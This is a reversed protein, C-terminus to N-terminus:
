KAKRGRRKSEAAEQCARAAQLENFIWTAWEPITLAISAPVGVRERFVLDDLLPHGSPDGLLALIPGRGPARPVLNRAAERLFALTDAELAERVLQTVPFTKEADVTPLALVSERLFAAVSAPSFTPVLRHLDYAMLAAASSPSLSRYSIRTSPSFLTEKWWILYTRRQLGATADSVAKLAGEVHTAVTRVLGQLPASLDIPEVAVQSKELASAIVVALRTSFEHAWHQPQNNPWHPNGGTQQGATNNPGTAAVIQKTLDNRDIKASPATGGVVKPPEYSVSPPHISDPTSWDNEARTDLRREIDSVVAAWIASEDGAAMHPLVNRASAAFAIGIREEDEAARVLAALLLGRFVLVPTRDFTNRYTAWKAQVVEAVRQLAPDDASIDPDFAALASPIAKDPASKLEDALAAVADNLKALKADDGGVNILGANLFRLLTNDGM